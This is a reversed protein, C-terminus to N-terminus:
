RREWAAATGGIGCGFCHFIGRAPLVNLAREGCDPCVGVFGLPAPSLAVTEGILKVLDTETKDM